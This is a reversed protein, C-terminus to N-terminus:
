YELFYTRVCYKGDEDSLMNVAFRYVAKIYDPDAANMEKGMLEAILKGNDSHTANMVVWLAFSNYVGKRECELGLKEMANHWTDYDWAAPPKMGEIIGLAESKTLYQKWKVACLTEIFMEAAEPKNDIYWAMMDKMVNGFLKMQKTDGSVAMHNYLVEFKNKLEEKTM